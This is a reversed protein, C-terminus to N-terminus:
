FRRCISSSTIGLTAPSIRIDSALHIAHDVIDFKPQVFSFPLKATPLQVVFGKILADNATKSLLEKALNALNNLADQPLGLTQQKDTLKLSRIDAVGVIRNNSTYISTELVGNMVMTGVKEGSDDIYLEADLAVSITALGVIEIGM